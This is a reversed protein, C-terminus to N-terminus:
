DERGSRRELPFIWWFVPLVVACALVALGVVAYEEPSQLWTFKLLDQFLPVAAVIFLLVVIVLALLTPRLDGPREQGHVWTRWPPKAFIAVVLGCGILTWTIALQASAISGSQELFYEFVVFGVAAVTIAAPAVFHALLRNLRATPLVGATAWLTLGASPLAVTAINVVTGQISQYPFGDRTLLLVVILMALYFVLTLNLKLVDLLGNTIRQGKDLVRSLVAPSDELLVIDAEGLAAQTSTHRSIAVNAQEMAPLDNVGDGVVAVAEGAVRMALVLLSAQDPTLDGFITHGAAALVLQDTDMEELEPGSISQLPLDESGLGAQRLLVVTQEAPGATFVKIGVGIQAFSRITEVAEPRVREAYHLRALGVLGTPVLPNGDADHLPALQPTYAFLLVTEESAPEEPAEEDEEPEAEGRQVMQRVRGFARRFFGPQGEDEEEARDASSEGEAEVPAAEAPAEDQSSAEVQLEGPQPLEGGSGTEAPHELETEEEEEGRRFLRGLPSVLKRPDPLSFGGQEEDPQHAAELGLYPELVEPIGLVYVGRLDDEDFAIASWGYASFFPAEERVWRRNGEFSDAMAQTVLGTASTSRAYDGLIQRLRSESLQEQGEKPEIIEIEVHTGTLIGAKAFCLVTSQALSEVSRARHVLAGIKGLDVTGAAYTLVIMFYLSAPAISFIVSVADTFVQTDRGLDVRFYVALLLATFVAVIVLLIRLIREIIRELYTPEEKPAPARTKQTVILREDGVRQAVYAGHGGVCFSGAYVADGGRKLVRHSEGTLMSEDLIFQGEGAVEGDVLIQDGPGVVLADSRVIESPDVSRATGDRIVTARPRGAAEIERLRRQAFLEQFMNIGINLFITGISLLADLPKGLLLQAFALGLLSLNFISYINDRWIERPTRAPRLEIVNDQGELRRAEAEEESLGEVPLPLTAPPTKPARRRRWLRVVIAAVLTAAAMFATLLILLRSRRTGEQEEM